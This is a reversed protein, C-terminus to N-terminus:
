ILFNGKQKPWGTFKGIAKKFFFEVGYAWGKGFVLLNDTNDNVNDGPLAGEKFEVMNNMGKYYVEVSAEYTDNKFNQFYGLSAQFGKQPKALDTTPYWIDTPLSVASLSTLHVFQYNYAYGGKISSNVGTLFRFSFRPELGHYFKILDGKAYEL